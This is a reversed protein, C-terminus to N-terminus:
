RRAVRLFGTDPSASIIVRTGVPTHKAANELLNALVQTILPADVYVAPLDAPLEVKVIHGALQTDLRALASGVLDDITEWDRRLMVQGAEFRMLDLVNSIIESM